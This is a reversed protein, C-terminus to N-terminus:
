QKKLLWEPPNAELNLVYVGKGIGVFHSYYKQIKSMCYGVLCDCLKVTDLLGADLMTYPLATDLEIGTDDVSVIVRNVPASPFALADKHGFACNRMQIYENHLNRFKAPVVECPLPVIRRSKTVQSKTFPRAYAVVIQYVIARQMEDSLGRSAILLKAAERAEVLSSRAHTYRWIEIRADQSPATM